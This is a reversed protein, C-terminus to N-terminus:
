KGNDTEDEESEDDESIDLRDKLNDDSNVPQYHRLDTYVLPLDNRYGCGFGWSQLGVLRAHAVLAAGPVALCPAVANEERAVGACLMGSQLRTEHREYGDCYYNPSTIVFSITRMMPDM